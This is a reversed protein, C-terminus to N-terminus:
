SKRPKKNALKEPWTSKEGETYCNILEAATPVHNTNSQETAPVRNCKAKLKELSLTLRAAVVKRVAILDELESIRMLAQTVQIQQEDFDVAQIMVNSREHEKLFQRVSDLRKLLNKNTIRLKETVADKTRCGHGGKWSEVNTHVLRQRVAEPLIHKMDKLVISHFHMFAHHAEMTKERDQILPVVRRQLRNRQKKLSKMSLDLDEKTIRYNGILSECIRNTEAYDGALEDLYNRAIMCKHEGTLRLYRTQDFAGSEKKIRITHQAASALIL